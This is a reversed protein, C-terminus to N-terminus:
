VEEPLLTLDSKWWLRSVVEAIAAPSEWLQAM